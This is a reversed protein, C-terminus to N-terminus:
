GQFTLGDAQDSKVPVIIEIVNNSRFFHINKNKTPLFIVDVSIFQKKTLVYQIRMM